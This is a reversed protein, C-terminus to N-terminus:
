TQEEDNVPFSAPISSFSDVLQSREVGSTGETDWVENMQDGFAVEGRIKTTRTEGYNEDKPSEMEDRHFVIWERQEHPKSVTLSKM